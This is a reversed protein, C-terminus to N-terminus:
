RLAAGGLLAPLARLREPTLAVYARAAEDRVFLPDGARVPDYGEEQLRRKRLKFTSTVDAAGVLRVFLPVAYPPLRSATFDFFARGDFVAPERLALAVMGARGEAGPVAVGYVNAVELGPFDALADAVEQTSVNESKWRFTDGIRDVFYFYGDEDHRLLDGSRYWRDGPRFVDRLVKRATDETSTYGEFRGAGSDPLDPIMGLLEGVEGPGCEICFGRADRPHTDTAADYRVLRANHREKFPIRGCSGVRGDVNILSTNAETSSWGELVRAVGFRAQLERWVGATLGAGMFVRVRHDRDRPSPPVSVLYRCLEGVYQCATVGHRRADDWFHRASFRRRLFIAAGQALACSVVVMGGAGHYLPLVCAIVDDPGYGAIASMGDGVGLFRMHSLRAAKPLGTTGSTFIHFLDDGAVLAARVAPDPDGAPAQALLPDLARARERVADVAPDPAPPAPRGAEPPAGPSGDGPAAPPAGAAPDADIIVSRGALAEMGASALAGLCEAGAILCRARTSEIARRLLAGRLHTNLLAATVGLKALGAWTVLYEPRNEMLLAAVDGTALGHARMAHAVRNAEANFAGYTLRREEFLVFTREPHARAKEEIRDGVTYRQSPTHRLTAAALRDLQAQTVERPVVPESV